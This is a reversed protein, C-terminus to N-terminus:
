GKISRRASEILLELDKEGIGDGIIIEGNPIEEQSRLHTEGCGDGAIEIDPDQNNEDREDKVEKIERFKM